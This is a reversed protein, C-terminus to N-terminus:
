RVMLTTIDCGESFPMSSKGHGSTHSSTRVSYGDIKIDENSDIMARLAEKMYETM